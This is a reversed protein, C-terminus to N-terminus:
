GPAFFARSVMVEFAASWGLMVTGKVPDPIIGGVMVTLGPPKWSTKFGFEESMFFITIELRPWSVSRNWNLSLKDHSLSLAKDPDIAGPRADVMASVNLEDPM